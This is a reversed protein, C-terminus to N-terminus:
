ENLHLITLPVVQMFVNFLPIFRNPGFIKINELLQYVPNDTNVLLLDYM